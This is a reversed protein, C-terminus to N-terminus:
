GDIDSKLSGAIAKKSKNMAIPVIKHLLSRLIAQQRATSIEIEFNWKDVCEFYWDFRRNHLNISTGKKRDSVEIRVPLWDYNTPSVYDARISRKGHPRPIPSPYICKNMICFIERDTNFVTTISVQMGRIKMQIKDYVDQTLSQLNMVIFDYEEINPFPQLWDVCNARDHDRSGIVLIKPHM